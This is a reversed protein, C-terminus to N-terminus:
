AQENQEVKILVILDEFGGRETYKNDMVIGWDNQGFRASIAMLVEGIDACEEDVEKPCGCHISQILENFEEKLKDILYERVMQPNSEKIQSWEPVLGKDEIIQPIKDRVLKNYEM